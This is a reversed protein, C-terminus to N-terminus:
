NEQSSSLLCSALFALFVMCKKAEGREREKEGERGGEREEKRGVKRDQDRGRM